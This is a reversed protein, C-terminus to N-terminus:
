KLYAKPESSSKFITLLFISQGYHTLTVHHNGTLEYFEKLEKWRALLALSVLDQNYTIPYM